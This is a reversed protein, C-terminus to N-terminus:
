YNSKRYNKESLCRFNNSNKDCNYVSCPGTLKPKLMKKKFFFIAINANISKCTKFFHIKEENIM